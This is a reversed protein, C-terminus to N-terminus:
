GGINYVALSVQQALDDANEQTNAEAYVRVVDETGSPRVFSRGSPYKRVLEDIAPQLMSPLIVKREADGTEIIRRDAVQVKAQRNPLETYIRYWEKVSWNKDQLIAEVALLDCMADGVTQNIIDLFLKLKKAAFREEASKNPDFASEGKQLRKLYFLSFSVTGHGNAEFYVGIDFTLAKEHLYKVGTPTCAIEINQQNILFNTSNGNAYATQIIGLRLNISASVSNKEINVKKLNDRIYTAFLAAIKDGDLLIFNCDSDLTYYILRDADGDFSAYRHFPEMNLGAPARQQVKVYDAGCNENLKGSQGDNYVVIDIINAGIREALKTLKAAGVGNACDVTVPSTVPNLKCLSVVNLLAKFASAYNQYYHEEDVKIDGGNYCALIYHLQPTTLLGHDHCTAGFASANAFTTKNCVVENSVQLRKCYFSFSTNSLPIKQSDIIQKLQEILQDNTVNALATALSEWSQALMEGQPDILKVGNDHEPNHSATVMVGIAAEKLKSRLAALMGMRFFVYEMGSANGRFGATGYSVRVNDP